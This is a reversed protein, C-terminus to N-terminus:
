LQLKKVCNPNSVRSLNNVLGDSETLLFLAMKATKKHTLQRPRAPRMKPWIDHSRVGYTVSSRRPRRSMKM